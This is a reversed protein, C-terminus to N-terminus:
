PELADVVEFGDLEPMRVDLFAVDPDHERIARLAEGGHRCRALVDVDPEESLLDGLLRLAHPEDDAVVVRLTM